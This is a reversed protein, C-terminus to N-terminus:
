KCLLNKVSQKLLINSQEILTHQYVLHCPMAFMQSFSLRAQCVKKAVGSNSVVTDWTKCM